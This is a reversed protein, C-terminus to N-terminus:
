FASWWLVLPECPNPVCPLQVIQACEAPFISVCLASLLGLAFFCSWPCFRERRYLAERLRSTSLEELWKPAAIHWCLTHGKVTMGKGRAWDVVKDCPRFDYVGQPTSVAFLHRPPPSSPRLMIPHTWRSFLPPSRTM